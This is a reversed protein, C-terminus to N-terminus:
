RTISAMVSMVCTRWESVIVCVPPLSAEGNFSSIGVGLGVGPPAPFCGHVAEVKHGRVHVPCSPGRVNSCVLQINSTLVRMLLRSLWAPAYMSLTGLAYGLSAEPSMKAKTMLRTCSSLRERADSIGVPLPVTFCGIKNGVYVEGRDRLDKPFACEVSTPVPGRELLWERLAGAIAAVAVDNMTCKTGPCATKGIRKFDDVSIKKSMQATNKRTGLEGKLVAKTNNSCCRLCIMCLAKSVLFSISSVFFLVVSFIHLHLPKPKPSHEQMPGFEDLLGSLVVNMSMGDCLMHHVRLFLVTNGGTYKQIVHAKWLPLREDFDDVFGVSDMLALLAAEHNTDACSPNLALESVLAHLDLDPIEVFTSGEVRSRFRSFRTIGHEPDGLLKIVDDATVDGKLVM